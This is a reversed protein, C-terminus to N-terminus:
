PGDHPWRWDAINVERRPNWALHCRLPGQGGQLEVIFVSAEAVCEHFLAEPLDGHTDADEARAHHVGDKIELTESKHHEPQEVYDRRHRFPCDEIKGPDKGVFCQPSSQVLLIFFSLSLSSFFFFFVEFEASYDSLSLSKDLGFAVRIWRRVDPTKVLPSKDGDQGIVRQYQAGLSDIYTFHWDHTYTTHYSASFQLKSPPFHILLVLLRREESHKADFEDIVKKLHNVQLKSCAAMDAVALLIRQEGAEYFDKVQKECGAASGINALPLVTMVSDVNEVTVGKSTLLLERLRIDTALQYIEGTTRTYAVWKRGLSSRGEAVESAVGSFFNVFSFHEQDMLYEILYSRPLFDKQLYISEPRAIQMLYFNTDRIFERMRQIIEPAEATLADSVHGKLDGVQLVNLFQAMDPDALDPEGGEPANEAKAVFAKPIQPIKSTTKRTTELVNLMLSYLTEDKVLGYFTAPNCQKIFDQVGAAIDSLIPVSDKQPHFNFSDKLCLLYKEFRNLFPAPASRFDELPITVIIQFRPHVPCPRSFSGVAINAFYQLKQDKGVSSVFYRNFLEYFNTQIPGSNLLLVTEGLEMSSKVESVQKSKVIESTDDLFDSISVIKLKDKHPIGLLRLSDTSSEVRSPDILMVYRHAAQNPDEADPVLELEVSERILEVLTKPAVPRVPREADMRACEVEVAKFFHEVIREFSESTVGNFNRQLAHFLLKGTDPRALNSAFERQIDRFLYVFDRQDFLNEKTDAIKNVYVFARCVGNILADMTKVAAPALNQKGSDRYLLGTALAVLDRSDSKPLLVQICRNTKAADLTSNSLIVTSVVPHDAYYHFVKLAHKREDPLGGEDLFVVCQENYLGAQEFRRQSEVATKYVTSIEASSSSESCQYHFRSINRLRKFTESQSRSGLMNDCTINFSLTKSRGPDGTILLPIRAQLAVVNCFLNMQLSKTKAIGPPIIMRDFLSSLEGDILNVFNALPCGLSRSLKNIMDEFLSLKDEPLRFYYCVAVSLLLSRWHQMTPNGEPTLLGRKTDELFFNYLSQARVFDRISPHM